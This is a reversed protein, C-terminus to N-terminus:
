ILEEAYKQVHPVHQVHRQVHKGHALDICVHYM